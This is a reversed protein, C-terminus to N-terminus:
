QVAGLEAAGLSPHRFLFLDTLLRPTSHFLLFCGPFALKTWDSGWFFFTRKVGSPAHKVPELRRRRAENESWTTQLTGIRRGFFIREAREPRRTAANPLREILADELHLPPAKGVHRLTGRVDSATRM